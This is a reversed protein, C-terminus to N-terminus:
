KPTQRQCIRNFFIKKIPKLLTKIPVAGIKCGKARYHPRDMEKYNERLLM